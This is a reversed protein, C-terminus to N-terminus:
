ASKSRECLRRTSNSRAASPHPPARLSGVSTEACRTSCVGVRSASGISADNGVGLVVSTHPTDAGLGQEDALFQDVSANKGDAGSGTFLARAGDHGTTGVAIGASLDVGDVVLLRDKYSKGYTAPDDFPALSSEPYAIDFGDRPQWLEHARGHPMYVCVLRLPMEGITRAQAGQGSARELGLLAYSAGLASL